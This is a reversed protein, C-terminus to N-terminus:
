FTARSKRDFVTEFCSQRREAHMKRM